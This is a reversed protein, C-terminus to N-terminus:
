KSLSSVREFALLNFKKESMERGFGCRVVKWVFNLEWESPGAFAWGIFDESKVISCMMNLGDLLRLKMPSSIVINSM